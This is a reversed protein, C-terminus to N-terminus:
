EERALLSQARLDRLSSSTGLYVKIPGAAPRFAKTVDDFVDFPHHSAEPDLSLTVLRAEGPALAVRQFAVLRKPPQGPESLGFYVQVVEAGERDGRNTVTTELKLV